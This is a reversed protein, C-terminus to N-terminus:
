EVESVNVEEAEVSRSKRVSMPAPSTAPNVMLWDNRKSGGDIDDDGTQHQEECEDQSWSDVPDDADRQADQICQGYGSARDALSQAPATAKRARM